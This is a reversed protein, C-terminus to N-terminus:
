KAVPYGAEDLAAGIQAVTVRGPDFDIEVRKSSPDAEVSTVGPLTGVAEKVTAVCHACSIDPATVTVHELMSAMSNEKKGNLVVGGARCAHIV